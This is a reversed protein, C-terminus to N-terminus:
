NTFPPGFSALLPRCDRLRRQLRQLPGAQGRGGWNSWTQGPNALIVVQITVFRLWARSSGAAFCDGAHVSSKVASGLSGSSM